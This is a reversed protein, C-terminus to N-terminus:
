LEEKKIFRYYIYYVILLGLVFPLLQIAISIAIIGLIVAVILRASPKM